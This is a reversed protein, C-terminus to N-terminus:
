KTEGKFQKKIHILTQEIEEINKLWLVNDFGRIFTLQRKAYNRSHRKILDKLQSLGITGNFYDKFEKYGIAQMSQCDFTVLKSEILKKVESVLGSNFMNDVRKNIRDYLVQRDLDIAVLLYDYAPTINELNQESKTKGSLEIIELARIVRKTDNPHVKQSAISDKQKLLNYLYDQGNKELLDKYKQRVDNNKPTSAFTYPYILSKIYLGTGGVIIPVKNRSFIDEIIDRALTVFQGVSFEQDPNVVDILHHRIGQMELKTIKATGINLHRYVQMSDASIIEGDLQKACRLALNTKGSATPGTIILIKRM